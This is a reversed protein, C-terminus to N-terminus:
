QKLIEHNQLLALEILNRVVLKKITINILSQTESHKPSKVTISYCYINITVIIDLHYNHYIKATM